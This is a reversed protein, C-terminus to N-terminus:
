IYIEPKNTAYNKHPSSVLATSPFNQSSFWENFGNSLKFSNYEM